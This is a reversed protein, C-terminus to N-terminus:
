GLRLLHGCADLYEIASKDGQQLQDKLRVLCNETERYIRKRCRPAAGFNLQMVKTRESFEVKQIVEIFRYINPHVHPLLYNLRSHFGELNNNTRPGDTEFHNWMRMSFRADDDVWTRVIYDNFDVARPVYPTSQMAQVWADQVFPIPLLALGAARRIWQTVRPDEKYMVALGLSQTKRWIAQTFHFFCGKIVAQPFETEIASVVAQEFDIQIKSPSMLRNLREQVETKLQRFLRGYTTAQRDPLLAFVLPFTNQGVRAHIIYVQDWLDPCSTFTGDM